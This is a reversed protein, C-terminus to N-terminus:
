FRFRIGGGIHPGGAVLTATDTLKVTARSYRVDFGLGVHPRLLFSLDGGLNFGAASHSQRVAAARGFTATDFPYTDSVTVATVLDQDVMFWTPGGFLAAQWRPRIPLMVLAEVNIATESRTLGTADGSVPRPRNFYFPHPVQA